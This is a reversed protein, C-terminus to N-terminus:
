VHREGGTWVREWEDKEMHEGGQPLGEVGQAAARAEREYGERMMYDIIKKSFPCGNQCVYSYDDM